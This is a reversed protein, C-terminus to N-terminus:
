KPPSPPAATPPAKSKKLAGLVSGWARGFYAFIPEWEAGAPWGLHTLRVDTVAPGAPTLEVVVFTTPGLARQAPFSPPVNWTFSLMREPVYSLVTCGESGRNPALAPPGFYIEYRGGPHLEVTSDAGLFSKLGASTTWAAWVDAVPAGIRATKVLQREPASM